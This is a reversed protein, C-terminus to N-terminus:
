CAAAGLARVEIERYRGAAEFWAAHDKPDFRRPAWAQRVLERGEELSALTGHAISQVLINGTATAEVPGALVPRGTANATAQNLYDNQCGGGVIHLGEIRRGTLRELSEVVSAYRLALSDLIVKALVVPDEDRRHGQEGLAALLEATMSPPNFFRQADPCVLERPGGRMAVADLLPQLSRDKWERLCSQLLWLGMVNSLFRITGAVGGENTFGARAVEPNVLPEPRELGVLSWTGSSIYAWGPQLPTGAVASATDHAAPAIVAPPRHTGPPLLGDFVTGLATGPQVIPALLATPLQLRALLERDWDRSAQHLMQTTSAITYESVEAGCLFHHCLDPILLLRHV